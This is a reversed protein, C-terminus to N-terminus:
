ERRRRGRSTPAVVPAADPTATPTAEDPSSDSPPALLRDLKDNVALLVILAARHYEGPSLLRVDEVVSRPWALPDSSM